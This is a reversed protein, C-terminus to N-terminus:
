EIRSFVLITGDSPFQLQLTTKEVSVIKLTDTNTKGTVKSLLEQKENVEYTGTVSAYKKIISYTKDRNFVAEMELAEGDAATKRSSTDILEKLKWKGVIGPKAAKGKCSIVSISLALIFLISLKKFSNM